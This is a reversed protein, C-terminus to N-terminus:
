KRKIIRVFRTSYELDARSRHSVMHEVQLPTPRENTVTLDLNRSTLELDLKM